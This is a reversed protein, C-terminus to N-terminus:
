SWVKNVQLWRWLVGRGCDHQLWSVQLRKLILQCVDVKSTRISTFSTIDEEVLRECKSAVTVLCQSFAALQLRYENATADLHQQKVDDVLVIENAKTTAWPASLM